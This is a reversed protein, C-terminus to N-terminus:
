KSWVIERIESTKTDTDIDLYLKLVVNRAIGSYTGTSYITVEESTGSAGGIKQYTMKIQAQGIDELDITSEKNIPSGTAGDGKMEDFLSTGGQESWLAEFAMEAGSRATYYAQLGKDQASAQKINTQAISAVISTLIFLVLLTMVVFSLAIGDQNKLIKKM